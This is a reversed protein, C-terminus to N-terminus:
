CATFIAYKKGTIQYGTELYIFHSLIMNVIIKEETEGCMFPVSFGARLERAALMCCFTTKGTGETAILSVNDATSLTLVRDIPEIGTKTIPLMRTKSRDMLRNYAETCDLAITSNNLSEWVANKSELIGGLLGHLERFGDQGSYTKRNFTVESEVCTAEMRLVKICYDKMIAEYLNDLIVMGLEVETGREILSKFKEVCYSYLISQARMTSDIGEISSADINLEELIVPLEIEKDKIYGAVNTNVHRKFLDLTLNFNTRSSISKVKQVRSLFSLFIRYFGYCEDASVLKTLVEILESNEKQTIIASIVYDMEEYAERSLKLTIEM